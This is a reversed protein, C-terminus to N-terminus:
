NGNQVERSMRENIEDNTVMIGAAKAKEVLIQNKIAIRRQSEKRKEEKEMLKQWQKYQDPTLQHEM